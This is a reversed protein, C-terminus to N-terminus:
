RDEIVERDEMGMREREDIGRLWRRPTWTKQAQSVTVTKNSECDKDNYCIRLNTM